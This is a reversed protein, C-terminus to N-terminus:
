SNQIVKEIYDTLDKVLNICLEAERNTIISDNPHALSNQNRLKNISDIIGSASRLTTRIIESQDTAINVKVHTHLKNYLQSLTDSEEYSVNLNTLKGRLYGYFATHIRDFASYFKGEHMFKEADDIAKVVSEKDSMGSFDVVKNLDAVFGVNIQTLYYENQRGYVKQAIEFLEDEFQTILEYDEDPVKIHLIACRSNWDRSRCYDSTREIYFTSKKLASVIQEKKTLPTRDLGVTKIFMDRFELETM